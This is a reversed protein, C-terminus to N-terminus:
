CLCVAGLMNTQMYQDRLTDQVQNHSGNSVLRISAPLLYLGVIVSLVFHLPQEYTHLYRHISSLKRSHARSLGVPVEPMSILQACLCFHDNRSHSQHMTFGPCCYMSINTHLTYPNGYSSCFLACVLRACPLLQGLATQVACVIHVDLTVATCVIAADKVYCGHYSISAFATKTAVYQPLLVATFVLNIKGIAKDVLVRETGHQQVNYFEQWGHLSLTAFFSLYLDHLEQM